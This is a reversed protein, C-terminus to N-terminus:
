PTQTIAAAPLPRAPIDPGLCRPDVGKCGYAMGPGDQIPNGQEDIYVDRDVDFRVEYGDKAQLTLVSGEYSAVRVSGHREPTWRVGTARVSHVYIGSLNAGKLGLVGGAGVRAQKGGVEGYWNNELVLDGVPQDGGYLGYKLPPTTPEPGLPRKSFDEILKEEVAAGGAPAGARRHSTAVLTVVLAAGLVPVLWVLRSM